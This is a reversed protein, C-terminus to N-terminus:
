ELHENPLLWITAEVRSIRLPFLSRFNGEATESYKQKNTQKETKIGAYNPPSEGECKGIDYLYGSVAEFNEISQGLFSGVLVWNFNVHLICRIPSGWGPGDWFNWIGAPKNEWSWKLPGNQSWKEFTTLYNTFILLRTFLLSLWLCLKWWSFYLVWEKVSSFMILINLWIKELCFWHLFGNQWKKCLMYIGWTQFFSFEDRHGEM